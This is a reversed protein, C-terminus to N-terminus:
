KRTKQLELLRAEALEKVPPGDETLLSDSAAAVKFATEADAQNGLNEAALGLLYQVTGNGVGPGDPLKVRQLEDRSANWDGLRALAVATNLRIVAQEFPDTADALRARLDLLIRNAMLGQESLGILRPAPQVKLEVTRTAGAPDRLGLTINEGARRGEVIGDLTAADVVPKGDAQVVVDGIRKLGLSRLTDRQNQKESIRSKIQTVKLRAM